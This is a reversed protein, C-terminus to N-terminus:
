RNVTLNTVLSFEALGSRNDSSFKTNHVESTRNNDSSLKTAM